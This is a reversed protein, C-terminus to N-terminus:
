SAYTHLKTLASLGEDCMWHLPGPNQCLQLHVVLAEDRSEQMVSDLVGLIDLKRLYLHAAHRYTRSELGWKPHHTAAMM